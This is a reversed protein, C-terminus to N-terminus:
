CNNLFIPSFGLRTVKEAVMQELIKGRSEQVNAFYHSFLRRESFGFRAKWMDEQVISFLYRKVVQSFLQMSILLSVLVWQSVM